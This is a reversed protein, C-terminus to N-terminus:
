VPFWDPLKNEFLQTGFQQLREREAKRRRIVEWYATRHVFDQNLNNINVGAWEFVEDIDLNSLHSFQMLRTAMFTLLEGSNNEQELNQM